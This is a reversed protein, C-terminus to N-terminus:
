VNRGRRKQNLANYANQYRNASIFDGQRLALSELKILVSRKKDKSMKRYEAMTPFKM